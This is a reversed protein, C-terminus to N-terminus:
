NPCIHCQPEFHHYLLAYGFIKQNWAIFTWNDTHIINVHVNRKISVILYYWDLFCLAASISFGFMYFFDLFLLFSPVYLGEGFFSKKCIFSGSCNSWCTVGGIWNKISVYWLPTFWATAFFFINAHMLKPSVNINLNCILFHFSFNTFHLLNFYKLTASFTMNIDYILFHFYATTFLLLNSYTLTPSSTSNFNHILFCFSPYRWWFLM